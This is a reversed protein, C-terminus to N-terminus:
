PCRRRAPTTRPPNAVDRLAVLARRRARSVTGRHVGLMAAAEDLTYGNVDVLLVAAAQKPSLQRLLWTAQWQAERADIFQDGGGDEPVDAVTVIRRRRRLDDRVVSILAATLYAYPQPHELVREPRAAVKLYVEHVADRASSDGVLLVARRYLRPLLGCFLEDFGTAATEIQNIM